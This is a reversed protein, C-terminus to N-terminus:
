LKTSNKVKGNGNVSCVESLEPTKVNGHLYITEVVCCNEGEVVLLESINVPPRETSIYIYYKQIDYQIFIYLYLRHM